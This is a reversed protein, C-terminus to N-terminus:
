PKKYVKKWYENLYVIKSKVWEMNDIYWQITEEIGSSFPVKSKWGIQTGVKDSNLSYRFDHGPRDTVFEILDDPKKLHKLITQAV